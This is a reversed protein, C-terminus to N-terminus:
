RKQKFIPTKTSFDYTFVQLPKTSFEKELKQIYANMELKKNQYRERTELNLFDFSKPCIIIPQAISQGLALTENIWKSYLMSRNIHPEDIKEKIFEIMFLRSFTINDCSEIVLYDMESQEISYPLYNCFWIVREVDIGIQKFFSSNNASMEQNFITELIKEYKISYDVNFYCLQNPDIDSLSFIAKPNEGTRGYDIKLPNPINVIHSNDFPLYTFGPNRGILLTIIHQVEDQSLPSTGRSKGAVKKGTITWLPTKIYPCNLIDYEDLSINFDYAKEIKIKFPYSDNPSSVEYYPSSIARYVGHIRSKQNNKRTEWLFIYDGIEVQLMDAMIDAITKLWQQGVLQPTLISVANNRITDQLTEENVVFLRGKNMQPAEKISVILSASPREKKTLTKILNNIHCQLLYHM